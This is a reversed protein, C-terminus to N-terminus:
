SHRDAMRLKQVKGLSEYMVKCKAYDVAQDKTYGAKEMAVFMSVQEAQAMELATRRLEAENHAKALLRKNTAEAQRDELAITSATQEERSRMEVRLRAAEDRVRVYPDPFRVSEVHISTIALGSEDRMRSKLVGMAQSDARALINFLAESTIADAKLERVASHLMSQAADYLVQVIDSQSTILTEANVLRYHVVCDVQVTQQDATQCSWPKPDWRLPVNPTPLKTEHTLDPLCVAIAAEFPFYVLHVGAEYSGLTGNIKRTVVCRGVPVVLVANSLWAIAALFFASPLAVFLIYEIM